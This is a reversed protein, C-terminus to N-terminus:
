YNNKIYRKLDKIDSNRIEKIKSKAQYINKIEEDTVQFSRLGDKILDRAEGLEKNVKDIEKVLSKIENDKIEELLESRIGKKQANSFTGVLFFAMTILIVTVLYLLVFNWIAARRQQRNLAKM